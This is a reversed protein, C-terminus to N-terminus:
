VKQSMGSRWLDAIDKSPTKKKKEKRKGKDMEEGGGKKKKGTAQIERTHAESLNKRSSYPKFRKKDM